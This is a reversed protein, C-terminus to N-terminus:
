VALKFAARGGPWRRSYKTTLAPMLKTQHCGNEFFPIRCDHHRYDHLLSPYNIACATVTPAVVCESLQLKLGHM